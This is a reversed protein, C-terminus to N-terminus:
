KYLLIERHPAKQSFGCRWQPNECVESRIKVFM